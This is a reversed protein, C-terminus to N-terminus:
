PHIFDHNSEKNSKYQLDFLLDDAKRLESLLPNFGNLQELTDKNLSLFSHISDTIVRLKEAVQPYSKLKEQEESLQQMDHEYAAYDDLEEQTFFEEYERKTQSM